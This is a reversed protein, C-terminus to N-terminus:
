HRWIRTRAARKAPSTASAAAAGAWAAVNVTLVVASVAAGAPQGVVAAGQAGRMLAAAALPFVASSM